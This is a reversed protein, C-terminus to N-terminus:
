SKGGHLEIVAGGGGARAEHAHEDGLFAQALLDLGDLDIEPLFLLHACREPRDIREARNRNEFGIVSGTEQCGMAAPAIQLFGPGIGGEETM